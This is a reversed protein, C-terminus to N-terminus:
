INITAKKNKIWNPLDIYSSGSLPKYERFKFDINILNKLQWYGENNDWSEIKKKLKLLYIM